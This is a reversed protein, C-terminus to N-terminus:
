GNKKEKVQEKCMDCVIFDRQPHSIEELIKVKEKLRQIDFILNKILFDM